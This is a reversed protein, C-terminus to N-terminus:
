AAPGVSALNDAASQSDVVGDRRRILTAILGDMDDDSFVIEAEPNNPDRAVITVRMPILFLRKINAIEKRIAAELSTPKKKPKRSM